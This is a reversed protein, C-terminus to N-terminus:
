TEDCVLVCTKKRDRSDGQSMGVEPGEAEVGTKEWTESHSCGGGHVEKSMKRSVLQCM